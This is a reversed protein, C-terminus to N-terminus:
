RPSARILNPPRAAEHGLGSVRESSEGRPDALERHDHRHLVDLGDVRMADPFLLGDAIERAAARVDPVTSTM